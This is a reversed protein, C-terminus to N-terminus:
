EIISLLTRASQDPVVVLFCRRQPTREVGGVVWVGGVHHGRFHKRKGFKLEDIKVIISNGNEDYGGIRCDSSSLDEQIM